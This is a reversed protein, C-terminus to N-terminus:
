CLMRVLIDNPLSRLTPRATSRQSLGNANGAPRSQPQGPVIGLCIPSSQGPNAKHPTHIILTNM